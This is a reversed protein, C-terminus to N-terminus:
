NREKERAHFRLVAVTFQLLILDINKSLELLLIQICITCTLVIYFPTDLVIISTISCLIVNLRHPKFYKKEFIMFRLMNYNTQSMYAM